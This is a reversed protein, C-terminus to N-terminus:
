SSSPVAAIKKPRGVKKKLPVVAEGESVPPDSVPLEAEEEANMLIRVMSLLAHKSEEIQCTYSTHQKTVMDILNKKNVKLELLLATMSKLQRDVYGKVHDIRGQLQATLESESSNMNNHTYVTKAIDICMELFSFVEKAPHTYFSAIYVLMQSKETWEIEIFDRKCKGTIPAKLAIFIGIPSDLHSNLDRKFKVVEDTKVSTDPGHNKIEFMTLCNRIVCSRDTAHAQKSTNKLEGWKTYQASLEEFEKEGQKGIESSVHLREQEKQLRQEKESYLTQLRDMALKHQAETQAIREQQAKESRDRESKHSDLTRSLEKDHRASIESLTKKFREESTTTIMDIQSRLTMNSANLSELQAELVSIKKQFEASKKDIESTHNRELTTLSQELTHQKKEFESAQKTLEAKLADKYQVTSTSTRLTKISEVALTLVLHFDDPTLTSILDHLPLPHQFTTMWMGDCQIESILAKIQTAMIDSYLM